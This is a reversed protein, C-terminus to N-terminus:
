HRVGWFFGGIRLKPLNDKRRQVFHQLVAEGADKSAKFAVRVEEREFPTFNNEDMVKENQKDVEM